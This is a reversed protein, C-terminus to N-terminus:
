IAALAEDEPDPDAAYSRSILFALWAFSMAAPVLALAQMDRKLLTDYLGHLVMPVGQVRLLTVLWEPWDMDAGLVGQNHWIMLAVAATWIAHLGVCSIFRVLYIGSTAMGNYYESSYMIGEAIGFGAGSALGWVCAARWGFDDGGDSDRLKMFVPMAKTFEECLGVGFTFGLFSALFGNTQDFAARYSFGILKVLYFILMAVGGGRLWLNQTLGAIFQFALLMFIGVTATTSGVVLVHILNADGREFLALILASFLGAAAFGYVWHMWTQRSLHAGVLKGEPLEEVLEHLPHGIRYQEALEPYDRELKKFQDEDDGRVLLSFVLPVLTLAFWWHRNSRKREADVPPRKDNSKAAATRPSVFGQAGSADGNDPRRAKKKTSRIGGPEGPPIRRPPAPEVPMYNPRPPPENSLAYGGEEEVPPPVNAAASPVGPFRVAPTEIVLADAVPVQVIARCHPCRAQKGAAAEPAKLQKACTPCNVHIAM